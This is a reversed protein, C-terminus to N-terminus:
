PVRRRAVPFRSSFPFLRHKTYAAGPTANYCQQTFASYKITAPSTTVAACWSTTGTSDANLAVRVTPASSANTFTVTIGSGKPTVTTAAGGASDQGVNFGLYSYGAYSNATTSANLTGTMTLACPSAVREFLVPRHDHQGRRRGDFAFGSWCAGGVAPMSVFGVPVSTSPPAARRRRPAAPARRPPAAPAPPSSAAPAPRAARTRAALAPPSSAAPARRAAPTRHRRHRDIGGTHSGGTGTSSSGGTGTSSSGGNGTSNSGGSGTSGSVTDGNACSYSLLGLSLLGVTVLGSHLKM